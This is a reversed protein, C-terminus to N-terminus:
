VVESNASSVLTPPHEPVCLSVLDYIFLSICIDSINAQCYFFFFRM